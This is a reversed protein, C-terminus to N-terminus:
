QSEKSLLNTLQDTFLIEASIYAFVFRKFKPKLHDANLDIISGDRNKRPSTMQFLDIYRRPAVGVFPRFNAKSSLAESTEVSISDAFLEFTRSKEYPEIFIVESIGAAVIHKACMHCPFTTCFLRSNSLKIGIRAAQSIADMEAHVARGFEIVDFLKSDALFAEDSFLMVKALQADTRAEGEPFLGNKRLARLTDEVLEAKIKVNSDFGLEYDRACKEDDAWYLGGGYKSVENCGTALIDGGPSVIAAGVQRSLDLSRLAAAQAFFMGQEDRSPSIYPDGLTLRVLRVLQRDLQQRPGSTVFFDAMPFTKGVRQGYNEEEEKYDRDILRIALEEATRAKDEIVPASGM